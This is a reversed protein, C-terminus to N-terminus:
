RPTEAPDSKATTTAADDPLVLGALDLSAPLYHRRLRLSNATERLTMARLAFIMGLPLIFVVSFVWSGALYRATWYQKGVTVASVAHFLLVSSFAGITLARRFESHRESRLVIRDVVLGVLGSCAIAALGVLPVFIYVSLMRNLWTTGMSVHLWATISMPFWAQSLMVTWLYSSNRLPPRVILYRVTALPVIGGILLGTLLLVVDRVEPRWSRVSGFFAALIATVYLLTGLRFQKPKPPPEPEFLSETM